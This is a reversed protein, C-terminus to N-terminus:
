VTWDSRPVGLEQLTNFVQDEWRGRPRGEARKWSPDPDSTTLKIVEQTPTARAVHGLFTLRQKAIRASLPVQKTTLRISENSIFDQWRIGEIRKLCQTDFADLKQALSKTLTWTEAGVRRKIDHDSKCDSTILSGLYNFCQVVEVSEGRITPCVPEDLFDSLSQLKTKLWSDNDRQRQRSTNAESTVNSLSALDDRLSSELREVERTM